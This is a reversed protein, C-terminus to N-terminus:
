FERDFADLKLAFYSDFAEDEEALHSLEAPTSSLSVPLRELIYENKLKRSYVRRAQKTAKSFNRMLDRRETVSVTIGMYKKLFHEPLELLGGHATSTVLYSVVNRHAPIDSEGPLFIREVTGSLLSSTSGVPDLLLYYVAENLAYLPTMVSSSGQVPSADQVSISKPDEIEANACSLSPSLVEGSGYCLDHPSVGGLSAQPTRNYAELVDSVVRVRSSYLDPSPSPPPVHEDIHGDGQSVSVMPSLFGARHNAETQIRVISGHQLFPCSISSSGPIFDDTISGSHDLIDWEPSVLFVVSASTHMLNSMRVKFKSVLLDRSVSYTQDRFEDNPFQLQITFRSRLPPLTSLAM